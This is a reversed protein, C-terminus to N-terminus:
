RANRGGFYRTWVRLALALYLCGAAAIALARVSDWPALLYIAVAGALCAVDIAAARTGPRPRDPM